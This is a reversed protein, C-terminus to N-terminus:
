RLACDRMASMNSAFAISCGQSEWTQLGCSPLCVGAHRRWAPRAAEALRTKSGGPTGGPLKVSWGRGWWVSPEPGVSAAAVCFWHEERVEEWSDPITRARGGLSGKLTRATWAPVPNPRDSKLQGRFKQSRGWTNIKRGRRM